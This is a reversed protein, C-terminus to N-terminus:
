TVWGYYAQQLTPLTKGSLAFAGLIPFIRALSADKITFVLICFSMVLLGM